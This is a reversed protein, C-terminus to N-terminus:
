EDGEVLMLRGKSAALRFERAKRYEPDNYCAHATEMDPFEGVVHRSGLDEAELLDYAGGRALFKAGYKRYVPAATELYKKYTEPDHVEIHAIWYAKPM